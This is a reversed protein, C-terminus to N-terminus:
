QAKRKKRQELLNILSDGKTVATSDEREDFQPAPLQLPPVATVTVTDPAKTDGSNIQARAAQVTAALGKIQAERVQANTEAKLRKIEAEQKLREMKMAHSEAEEAMSRKGIAPQVVAWFLGWFPPAVAVLLMTPSFSSVHIGFADSLWQDTAFAKFQRSRWALSNWMTISTAVIVGFWCMISQFHNRKAWHWPALVSLLWAMGVIGASLFFWLAIMPVQTIDIRNLDIGSGDSYVYFNFIMDPVYLVVPFIYYIKMLISPLPLADSEKGAASPPISPNM